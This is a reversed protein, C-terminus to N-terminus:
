SVCMLRSACLVIFCVVCHFVCPRRGMQMAQWDGQCMRRKSVFVLTTGLIHRCQHDNNPLARHEPVCCRQTMWPHWPRHTCIRLSHMPLLSLHERRQTHLQRSIHLVVMMGYDFQWLTHDGFMSKLMIYGDKFRKADKFHLHKKALELNEDIQAQLLRLCAQEYGAQYWFCLADKAALRACEEPSCKRNVIRPMEPSRSKIFCAFKARFSDNYQSIIEAAAPGPPPARVAIPWRSPGSGCHPGHPLPPYIPHPYLNPLLFPLVSSLFGFLCHLAGM